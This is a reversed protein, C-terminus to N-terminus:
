SGNPGLPTSHFRWCNRDSVVCCSETGIPEKPLERHVTM